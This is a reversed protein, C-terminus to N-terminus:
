DQPSSAAALVPWPRFMPSSLGSTLCSIFGIWLVTLSAVQAMLSEGHDCRVDFLGPRAEESEDNVDLVWGDLYACLGVMVPLLPMDYRPGILVDM